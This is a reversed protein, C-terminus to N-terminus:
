VLIPCLATPPAPGSEPQRRIKANLPSPHNCPWPSPQPGCLLDQAEEGVRGWGM